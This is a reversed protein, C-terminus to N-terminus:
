KWNVGEWFLKQDIFVKWATAFQTLYKETLSASWGQILQAAPNDPTTLESVLREAVALDNLNGLIDQLKVVAQLYPRVELESYLNAFFEGSYRLRKCLIRLHHRGEASLQLFNEGWKRVRLHRHALLRIAFNNVPLALDQIQEPELFERWDRRATWLSIELLLKTYRPTQVKTHTDQWAYLHRDHASKILELLANHNPYLNQVTDLTENIFVDWDRTPGLVGTLWILENDIDASVTRPILARFLKLGSRLRRTAVRMQHIGEHNEGNIVVASNAHLHELCQQVIIQFAEETTNEKTIFLPRAKQPLPALPAEFLSYGRAAKSSNELRLPLDEALLAAVEYLCQPTGNKIELELECIPLTQGNAHVNGHDAALEIVSGESLNLIWCSRWFDTTFLPQLNKEILPNSFIEKLSPEAICLALNLEPEALNWEWEQRQHLGAAAAGTTKVTQVWSDGVRRIRLAIGLAALNREPTDYYINTLHTRQAESQAYRRVVPLRGVRRLSKLDLSLKLETETAM